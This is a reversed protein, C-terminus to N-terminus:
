LDLGPILCVVADLVLFKYITHDSLGLCAHISSSASRATLGNSLSILANLSITSSCFVAISFCQGAGKLGQM